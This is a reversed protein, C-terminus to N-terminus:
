LVFRPSRYNERVAEEHYPYSAVHVFTGDVDLASAILEKGRLRIDVGLGISKHREPKCADLVQLLERYLGQRINPIEVNRALNELLYSRVIKAHVDKWASPLSVLDLGAFKGNLEVFIGCQGELLSFAEEAKQLDGEKQTYIDSLASTRSNVKNISHKVSIEDWVVSQNADFSEHAALNLTVRNMKSGRMDHPLINGSESFNPSSYQWRGAETCSVPVVLVSKAPILVSANLIRNQKAGKLEEGDLILVPLDANNTVKLNPVSGGESVESIQLLNSSLAAKLSLYPLTKSNQTILPTICIGKYIQAAAPEIGLLYNTLANDM